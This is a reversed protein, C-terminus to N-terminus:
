EGGHFGLQAQARIAGVVVNVSCAPLSHCRLEISQLRRPLRAGPRILYSTEANVAHFELKQGHCQIFSSRTVTTGSKCAPMRSLAPEDHCSSCVFRGCLYLQLVILLLYMAGRVNTSVCRSLEPAWVTIHIILFCFPKNPGSSGAIPSDLPRSLIDKSVVGSPSLM